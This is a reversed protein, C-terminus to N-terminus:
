DEIHKRGKLNALDGNLKAIYLIMYDAFVVYLPEIFSCIIAM